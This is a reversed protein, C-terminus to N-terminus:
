VFTPFPVRSEEQEEEATDAANAPASICELVRKINIELYRAQAPFERRCANETWAADEFRGEHRLIAVTWVMFSFWKLTESSTNPHRIRPLFVLADQSPPTGFLDRAVEYALEASRGHARTLLLQATEIKPFIRPSEDFALHVLSIFKDLREPDAIQPIQKGDTSLGHVLIRHLIVYCPGLTIYHLHHDRPASQKMECAKFYADLANALRAAEIDLDRSSSNVGLKSQILARLLRGRWRYADLQRRWAGRAPGTSTNTDALRVDIVLWEWIKQEHGEHLLFYVMLDMFRLKEVYSNSNHLGSELLWSLVRRGPAHNRIQQQQQEPSLVKLQSMFQDLCLEAIPVTAAHQHHYEELLDIPDKTTNKALEVKASAYDLRKGGKVLLPNTLVSALHKDALSASSHGFPRVQSRTVGTEAHKQKGEVEASYSPHAEDLHKRFSSTLATLLRQSEKTTLPLQPHIKDVFSKWGSLVAGTGKMRTPTHRAFM